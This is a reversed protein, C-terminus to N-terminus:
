MIQSDNITITGDKLEVKYLMKGNVNKPQFLMMPMIAEPQQKIFTYLDKSLNLDLNATLASLALMPNEQLEVVNVSKDISLFTNLEFGKMKQGLYEINAVSFVPIELQIGKSVLKQLAENIENDNETDAQGLEELADMDLNKANMELLLSDLVIKNDKDSIVINKTKTKLTTTALSDKVKVDSMVEFHDAELLMVGKEHLTLQEIRYDTKYDYLTAGTVSYNSKLGKVTFNFTDEADISISQLSQQMGQVSDDKIDGSFELKSLIMKLTIDGKLNEDIDKVYGKFGTGLKNIDCHVLFTKKELLQQIQRLVEKDEPTEVGDTM